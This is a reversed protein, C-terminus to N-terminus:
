VAARANSPDLVAESPRRPQEVTLTIYINKILSNNVVLLQNVMMDHPSFTTTGSITLTPHPPLAARWSRQSGFCLQRVIVDMTQRQPARADDRYALDATSTRPCRRSMRPGSHFRAPMTEVDMTWRPLARADDRRGHDATSASPCRRSTWPRGHLRAPMPPPLAASAVDSKAVTPQQSATNQTTAISACALRSTASTPWSAVSTGSTLSAANLDLWPTRGPASYVAEVAARGADELACEFVAVFYLQGNLYQHTNTRGLVNNTSTSTRGSGVKRDKYVGNQYTSRYVGDYRFSVVNGEAFSGATYDNSWWYNYDPLKTKPCGVNVM